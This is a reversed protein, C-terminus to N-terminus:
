LREFVGVTTARRVLSFGFFAFDVHMGFPTLTFRDWPTHMYVYVGRPCLGAIGKGLFQMRLPRRVTERSVCTVRDPVINSYDNVYSVDAHRQQSLGKSEYRFLTAGFRRNGERSSGPFQHVSKPNRM